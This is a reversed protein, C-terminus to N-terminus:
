DIGILVQEVHSLHVLCKKVGIIIIANKTVTKRMQRVFLAIIMLLWWDGFIRTGVLKM